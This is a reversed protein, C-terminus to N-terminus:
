GNEKTGKGYMEYYNTIKELTELIVGCKECVRRRFVGNYENRTEKVGARIYQKCNPCQFHTPKHM